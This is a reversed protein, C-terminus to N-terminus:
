PQKLTSKGTTSSHNRAVRQIRWALIVIGTAIAPATLLVVDIPGQGFDPESKLRPGHAIGVLSPIIIAVFAVGASVAAFDHRAATTQSTGFSVCAATAVGSTLFYSGIWAGDLSPYIDAGLWRVFLLLCFFLWPVAFAIAGALSGAVLGRKVNLEYRDRNVNV